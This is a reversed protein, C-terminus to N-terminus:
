QPLATAHLVSAERATGVAMCGYQMVLARKVKCQGDWGEISVAYVDLCADLLGVKGAAASWLAARRRVQLNLGGTFFNGVLGGWNASTLVQQVGWDREVAPTDLNDRTPGPDLSKTEPVNHSVAFTSALM